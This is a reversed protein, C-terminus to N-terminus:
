ESSKPKRGYVVRLCFIAHIRRDGFDQKAAGCLTKVEESSMGLGGTFLRLSLGELDEGMTMYNYTGIRKHRQRWPWDNTPLSYCKEQVKEFGARALLGKLRPAINITYGLRHSALELVRSWALLPSDERLSGDRSQPIFEMECVEFYGGPELNELAKNVIDEPEQFSTGLGRAYIMDFKRRWTWELSLDDVEFRLNEPLSRPQIPSKDVGIVNARPFRTAYDVAWSGTGTNIDLVRRPDTPSCLTLEGEQVLLLMWHQLTMRSRAKNDNPLLCEECHYERGNEIFPTDHDSTLSTTSEEDSSGDDDSNNALCAYTSLEM